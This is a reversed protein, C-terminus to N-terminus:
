HWCVSSARPEKRGSAEKTGASRACSSRACSSYRPTLQPTYQTLPPHNLVQEEPTLKPIKVRLPFEPKEDELKKAFPNKVVLATKAKRKTKEKQLLEEGTAEIDVDDDENETDSEEEIDTFHEDQSDAINDGDIDGEKGVRETTVRDIDIRFFGAESTFTFVTGRKGREYKAANRKLMQLRKLEEDVTLSDRPSSPAGPTFPSMPKGPSWPADDDAGAPSVPTDPSQIDSIADAPAGGAVVGKSGLSASVEGEASSSDIIGASPAGGEVSSDATITNELAAAKDEASKKM